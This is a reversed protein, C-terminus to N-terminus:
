LEEEYETSELSISSKSFYLGQNHNKMDIRVGSIVEGAQKCHVLSAIELYDM